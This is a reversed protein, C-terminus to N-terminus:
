DSRGAVSKGVCPGTMKLRNAISSISGTPCTRFIWFRAQSIQETTMPVRFSVRCIPAATQPVRVKTIAASGSDDSAPERFALSPVPWLAWACDRSASRSALSPHALEIQDFAGSCLGSQGQFALSPCTTPVLQRLHGGKDQNLFAVGPRRTRCCYGGSQSEFDIVSDFALYRLVLRCVRAAGQVLLSM